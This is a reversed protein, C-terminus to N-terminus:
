PSHLTQGELEKLSHVDFRIFGLIISTEIIEEDLTFENIDVQISYFLTEPINLYPNKFLM